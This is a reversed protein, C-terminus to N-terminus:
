EMTEGNSKMKNVVTLTQGLFNDVKEGGKMALFEFERRLAQLQARKM